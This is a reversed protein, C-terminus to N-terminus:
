ECCNLDDTGTMSRLEVVATRYDLEAKIAAIGSELQAAARAKLATMDQTPLPVQQNLGALQQAYTLGQEAQDVANYAKAAALSTDQVEKRLATAGPM